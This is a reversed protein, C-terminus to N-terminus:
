DRLAEQCLALARSMRYEVAKATIGFHVAIQQYSMGVFRNLIFTERYIPPLGLIVQKLLLMTEQEPHSWPEGEEIDPQYALQAGGRRAQHRYEDRALNNAVTMLLARPHRAEGLTESAVVRLFAEQALDESAERGVSAALRRRIWKAQAAFIRGLRERM